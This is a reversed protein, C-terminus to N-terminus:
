ITASPSLRDLRSGKGRQPRSLLSATQRAPQRKRPPWLVALKLPGSECPGPIQVTSLSSKKAPAATCVMWLSPTVIASVAIKAQCMANLFYGRRAARRKQQEPPDLDALLRWILYNASHEIRITTKSSDMVSLAKLSAPKPWLRRTKAMQAFHTSRASTGTFM